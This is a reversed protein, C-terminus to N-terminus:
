WGPDHEHIDEFAQPLARVLINQMSDALRHLPDTFDTRSYDQWGFKDFDDLNWPLWLDGGRYPRPCRILFLAQSVLITKESYRETQFCTDLSFFCFDLIKALAGGPIESLGEHGFKSHM